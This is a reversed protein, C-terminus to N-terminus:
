GRTKGLYKLWQAVLEQQPGKAQVYTKAYRTLRERDGALPDSTRGALYGQFLLRMTVFLAGTDQPNVDLYGTLLELAASERGLMAYAIGARRRLGPDQPWKARAEDLLAAAPEPQNGRLLADAALAYTLPHSNEGVLATQWAGAAQLDQGDAAACAGLYFAAPFFESSVRLAAQFQTAAGATQGSAYLGLGRLFHLALNDQRSSDLAAVLGDYRGTRAQALAQALAQEQAPVDLRALFGAVLEPQLADARQFRGISPALGALSIPQGISPAAGAAAAAHPTGLTVRFPREPTTVRRGDVSVVARAVYEGPPLLGASFQGQANAGGGDTLTVRAPGSLLAPEGEREAVELLVQAKTLRSADKAYLDVYANIPQGAVELDITPAFAAGPRTAPLALMVDGVELGEASTLLARVPHDVSGRRGRGDLAALKLTYLGPEVLLTGMFPAPVGPAAPRPERQVASTVVRGKSDVLAYGVSVRGLTGADHGIEASVLVRVKGSAADRLAHTAVRLPLAVAPFPAGLVAKLVDEMKPGAGENSPFRVSRRARVAAGPRRVSVKIAHDRGDRDGAEPEIGLLYYGTLERAIREFVGVGAGGVRFTAGRALTALAQLGSNHLLRDESDDLARANSADAGPELQLTYLTVQSAGATRALEEYDATSESVLGESILVVSKPGEFNGLAGFLAQLARLSVVSQRRFGQALTGADAELQGRCAVLDNQASRSTPTESAGAADAAGPCERRIVEDWRQEDGETYALAERLTFRPHTLRARGVVRKLAERVKGFDSTFDVSPGPTPFVVLAARDAPTLQDLLRTAADAVARGAGLSINGQDIAILVLRGPLLGVNSTFHTPRPTVAAREAADQSLFEASLVTRPQNDVRIEFDAPTLGQIPRGQADVVSVDVAVLDVDVGFIPPLEHSKSVDDMSTTAAPTGGAVAQPLAPEGLRGPQADRAGAVTSGGSGLAIAACCVALTRKM